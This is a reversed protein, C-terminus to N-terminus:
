VYKQPSLSVVFRKSLHNWEMEVESVAQPTQYFLSRECESELLLEKPSDARQLPSIRGNPSTGTLEMGVKSSKRQPTIKLPSVQPTIILSAARSVPRSIPRSDSLPLGITADKNLSHAADTCVPAVLVPLKIVGGTSHNKNTISRPSFNGSMDKTEATRNPSGARDVVCAFPCVPREVLDLQDKKSDKRDFARSPSSNTRDISKKLASVTPSAIINGGSLRRSQVYIQDEIPSIIVPSIDSQIPSHLRPSRLQADAKLPSAVPSKLKCDSIKRPLSYDGRLTEATLSPGSFM